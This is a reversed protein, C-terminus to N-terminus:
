FEGGEARKRKSLVQSVERGKRDKRKTAKGERLDHGKSVAKSPDKEKRRWGPPNETHSDVGEEPGRGIV